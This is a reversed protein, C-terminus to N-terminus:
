QKGKFLNEETNRLRNEAIRCASDHFQGVGEKSSKCLTDRAQYKKRLLWKIFIHKKTGKGWDKNSWNDLSSRKKCQMGQTMGLYTWGSARYLTGTRPPEVFTILGILRIKYRVFYDKMVQRIALSLVNTAKVDTNDIIRFINNNLFFEEKKIGFVGDFLKYHLPPSNFGIIGVIRGDMKIFYHFQRGMVGKSKPYHELFLTAYTKNGKTTKEITLGKDFAFTLLEKTGKLMGGHGKHQSPKKCVRCFLKGFCEVVTTINHCISCEKNHYVKGM